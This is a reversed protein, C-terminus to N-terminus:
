SGRFVSGHGIQKFSVPLGGVRYVALGWWGGHSLAPALLYALDHRSGNALSSADDQM